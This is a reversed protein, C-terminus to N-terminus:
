RDYGGNPRMRPRIGGDLLINRMRQAGPANASHIYVARPVHEPNDVIWVCLAEGDDKGEGLDHDLSVAEATGAEVMLGIADENDFARTWGPPAKRQDDHWIKYPLNPRVRSV